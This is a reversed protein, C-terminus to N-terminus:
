RLGAMHRLAMVFLRSCIASAYSQKRLRFKCCRKSSRRKCMRSIFVSQAAAMVASAMALLGLTILRRTPVGRAVLSGAWGATAICALIMPLEGLSVDIPKHRYVYQWLLSLQIAVVANGVNFGIGNNSDRSGDSIEYVFSGTVYPIDYGDTTVAAAQQAWLAGAAFFGLLIKRM